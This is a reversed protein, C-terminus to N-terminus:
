FFCKSEIWHPQNQVGDNRIPIVKFYEVEDIKGTEILEYEEFQWVKLYEPRMMLIKNM